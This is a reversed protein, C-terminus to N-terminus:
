ASARRFQHSALVVLIVEKPPLTRAAVAALTEAITVQCNYYPIIVSVSSPKM